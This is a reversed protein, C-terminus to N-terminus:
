LLSLPTILTVLKGATNSPGSDSPLRHLATSETEVNADIQPSEAPIEDDKIPASVALAPQIASLSTTHEPDSSQHEKPLNKARNAGIDTQRSSPVQQCASIFDCIYHKHVMNM